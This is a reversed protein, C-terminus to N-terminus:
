SQNFKVLTDSVPRYLGSIRLTATGPENIASFVWAKGAFQYLGDSHPVVSFKDLRVTVDAGRGHDEVLRRKVADEAAQFLRESASQELVQPQVAMPELAVEGCAALLCACALPTLWTLRM